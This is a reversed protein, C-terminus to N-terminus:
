VAGIDARDVRHGAAARRHYNGLGSFVTDGTLGTSFLGGVLSLGIPVFRFLLLGALAPALFAFPM